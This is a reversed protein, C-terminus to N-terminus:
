IGCSARHSKGRLPRQIATSVVTIIGAIWFAKGFPIPIYRWVLAFCIGGFNGMAGVIGTMFGNSGPNCHPVLSFNAGNAIENVLALLVILIVVVGLSPTPNSDIYLGMGVSLLGQAVGSM